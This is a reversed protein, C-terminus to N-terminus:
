LISQRVKHEVELKTPGPEPGPAPALAGTLVRLLTIRLKADRFPPIPRIANGIKSKTMIKVSRFFYSFFYFFARRRVEGKEGWVSGSFLHRTASYVHIRICDKARRLSEIPENRSMRVEFRIEEM